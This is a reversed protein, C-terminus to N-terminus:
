LDDDTKSLQVIIPGGGNGAVETRGLKPMTYELLRVVCDFAAKPDKEAIQDLWGQLRDTNAELFLAIAEKVDRTSRNLAGKRRGKGANPPMTGIPAPM